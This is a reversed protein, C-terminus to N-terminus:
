LKALVRRSVESPVVFLRSLVAFAIPDASAAVYNLDSVPWFHKTNLAGDDTTPRVMATLMWYAM